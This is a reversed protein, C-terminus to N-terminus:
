PLYVAMKRLANLPLEGFPCPSGTEMELAAALKRSLLGALEEPDAGPLAEALGRRIRGPSVRFIAAYSEVDLNLSIAAHILVASKKRLQACGVVKRGERLLTDALQDEFCISSRERGGPPPDRRREVEAGAEGLGSELVELFRDYLITIGGAWPHDAPLVLSLSLDRHHLVGTGGTSRRLVPIRRARCIELDIDSVPQAYGLVLVPSPWCYCFIAPKARQFIRAETELDKLPLGGISIRTEILPKPPLGM